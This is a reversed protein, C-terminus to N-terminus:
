KQLIFVHVLTGTELMYKEEQDGLVLFFSVQLSDGLWFLPTKPQNNTKNKLKSSEKM